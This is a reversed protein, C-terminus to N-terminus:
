EESRVAGIHASSPGTDRGATEGTATARASGTEAGRGSSSQGIRQRDVGYCASFYPCEECVNSTPEHARQPIPARGDLADVVAKAKEFIPLACTQVGTVH